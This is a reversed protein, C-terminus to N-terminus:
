RLQIRAHHGSRVTVSSRWRPADDGPRRLAVRHRGARIRARRLPTRGFPRGDVLIWGGRRAEVTLHGWGRETRADRPPAAEPTTADSGDVSRGTPTQASPGPSARPPSGPRPDSATTARPTADPGSPRPGDMSGTRDAPVEAEPGPPPDTELPPASAPAPQDRGRPAAADDEPREAVVQTAPRPDSSRALWWSPALVVIAAAVLGSTAAPGFRGRRPAVAPAEAEIASGGVEYAASERPEQTPPTPLPDKPDRDALARLWAQHRARDEGLREDAFAELGPGGVRAAFRELAQALARADPFRREREPSLGRMVIKELGRPVRVTRSPRPPRRREEAAALPSERASFLRQGTLLEHLVVCLSYVDSRRDAEQGAIQEPSVYTIKGKVLGTGTPPAQRESVLAIGFDLLKMRGVFSLIINHPSIDRHVIDLPQDDDGRAEHAAHLGRAVEAVMRAAIPAPVPGRSRLAELSLGAVYEMILFPTNRAEGFDQVQAIAPHDLRSLVRAEDLFMTRVQTERAMDKRILKLAVWRAFGHPRTRRALYVEGMGGRHLGAAIEVGVLQPVHPRKM